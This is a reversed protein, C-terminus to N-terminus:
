LASCIRLADLVAAHINRSSVADGIRHLEFGSDRLRPQAAAKVMADLDTVGDNASQPRLELYIENMPISGQEIIVQDVL